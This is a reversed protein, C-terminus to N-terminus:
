NKIIKKWMKAYKKAEKGRWNLKEMLVNKLVQVSESKDYKGDLTVFVDMPIDNM